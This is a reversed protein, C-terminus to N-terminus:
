PKYCTLTLFGMRYDVSGAHVLKNFGCWAPMVRLHYNQFLVHVGPINLCTFRSASLCIKM